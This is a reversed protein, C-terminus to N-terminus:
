VVWKWPVTRQVYLRVRTGHVDWCGYRHLFFFLSWDNKSWLVSCACVIWLRRVAVAFFEILFMLKVNNIVLNIPFFDVLTFLGTQVHKKKLISACQLTLLRENARMMKACLMIMFWKIFSIIFYFPAIFSVFFVIHTHHYFHAM